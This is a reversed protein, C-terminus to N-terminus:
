ARDFREYPEIVIRMNLGELWDELSCLRPSHVGREWLSIYREGYGIREALASQTLGLELRRARLVGPLGPRAPKIIM